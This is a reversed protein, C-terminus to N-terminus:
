HTALNKWWSETYRKLLEINDNAVKTLGGSGNSGPDPTYWACYDNFYAKLGSNKFEYGNASAIIENWAICREADSLARVASESLEYTNSEPFIRGTKGDRHITATRTTGDQGVVSLTVDSAEKGASADAKDEKWKAYLVTDAEIKLPFTAKKKYGQDLYWGDFTYGTRAPEEPTTISTGAEVVTVSISSGGGTEYMVEYTDEAKSAASPADQKAPGKDDGQGGLVTFGVILAAVIVVVAVVIGIILGKNSKKPATPAAAYPAAPMNPTTQAAAQMPAVPPMVATQGPTTANEWASQQYASTPAGAPTPSQEVSPMVMTSQAAMSEELGAAYVPEEAFGRDSLMAQDTPVEGQVVEASFGAGDEAVIAEEEKFTDGDSPETPMGCSTCFVADDDLQTGCNTCFKAM